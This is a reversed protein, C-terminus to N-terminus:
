FLEWGERAEVRDQDAIFQLLARLKHAEALPQDQVEQVGWSGFKSYRGVHSFHWLQEVGEERLMTLYEIYRDFMRPDRNVGTLLATLTNDNEAGFVGVYHQGGEYCILRYGQRAAIAAQARVQLRVAEIDDQAITTALADITPYGNAIIDAPTFVPGFYPAIALAEPYARRPNLAPDNIGEVRFQTVATNASQTALVNVIREGGGFEDEFIEWIQTSRLAVFRQAAVFPDPHLGLAVGQQQVYATQTFPGSTNWTENSYEVYIDLGPDVLDRLLRAAGRVYDDTAQHPVCFWLDKGLRNALAAMLEISAGERAAQTFSTATTRDAFDVVPSGNTAGWDMFRLGYFPRLSDLYTPHFVETEFTDEFGPTLLRFDRIPDAASTSLIEVGVATADRDTITVTATQEPGTGTLTTNLSPGVLRLSGTGRFRFQYAGTVPFGDVLITHPNQPPFGPVTFPVQIPYGDANVPVSDGLGTDFAGSGNANRSMWDRTRRMHDLFPWDSGFDSVGALNMGIEMRATSLATFSGIISKNGDMTVFAPNGLGVLDGSWGGFRHGADPTAELRVVEGKRYLVSNPAAEVSGGAGGALTLTFTSGPFQTISFSTLATAHNFNAGFAYLRFELPATINNLADPAIFFRFTTNAFDESDFRPTTFLQAGETFGGASTFLAYRRPAHFTQREISFEVELGGLDLEGGPPPTVTFGIYDGEALAESLPSEDGGDTEINFGFANSIATRPVAGPGLDWGSYVVGPALFTTPTWPTNGSPSTGTFDCVILGQAGSLAPVVALM